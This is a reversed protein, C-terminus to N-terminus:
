NAVALPVDVLVAVDVSAEEARLWLQHHLDEAAMLLPILSASQIISLYDRKAADREPCPLHRQQPPLEHQHTHSVFEDRDFGVNASDLQDSSQLRSIISTHDLTFEEFRAVMIPLRRTSRLVERHWACYTQLRRRMLWTSPVDSNYMSWSTVTAVPERLTLVAPVDAEVYGAFAFADHSKWCASDSSFAANVLYSFYTSGTRPFGTVAVSTRALQSATPREFDSTLKNESIPRLMASGLSLGGPIRSALNLAGAFRPFLRQPAFHSGAPTGHASGRPDLM